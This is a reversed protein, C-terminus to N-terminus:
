KRFNNQEKGQKENDIMDCMLCKGTKELHEKFSATELEIKKPIVSYGYIQGHPHPMTVGVVEGRNEFLLCM